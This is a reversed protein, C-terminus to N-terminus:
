GEPDKPLTFYFIAGKNLEGEAWTTGGHRTIIRRVNALGVGTGDYEESSHLRQFLGFLKDVFRMDFGTGNDKVFLVHQRDVAPCAGLEIIPVMVKSSYKVANSLLNTLVLRLMARDGVVAPLSGIRWDILKGPPLDKAIEARVEQALEGLDVQQKMLEERGMRSFALLDDILVGMRRAASSIVELYHRSKEDLHSDDEQRLLEVYGMVHRLPARLDHSVSYSFAELERNASKLSTYSHQLKTGMANVQRALETLEDQGEVSVRTEFKGSAFADTWAQLASIRRYLQRNLYGTYSMVALGFGCLSAALYLLLRNREKITIERAQVLLLRTSDSLLFAELLLQSTLRQEILRNLRKAPEGGEESARLAVIRPFLQATAQFSEEMQLLLPAEAPSVKRLRLSKLHQVIEATKAQWTVIAATKGLILYEDRLFTRDFIDSQLDVLFAVHDSERHVRHFVIASGAMSLVMLLVSLTTTLRLSTRIKM